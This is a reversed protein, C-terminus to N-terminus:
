SSCLHSSKFRSYCTTRKGCIDVLAQGVRAHTVDVGVAEVRGPRVPALAAVAVGAVADGADAQTTLSVYCDGRLTNWDVVQCLTVSM